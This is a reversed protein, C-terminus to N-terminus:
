CNEASLIPSPPTFSDQEPAKHNLTLDFLLSLAKWPQFSLDQGITFDVRGTRLYERIEESTDHALIHVRGERGAQRVADVCAPVSLNAMYIYRLDPEEALARSM